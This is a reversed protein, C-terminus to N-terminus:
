LDGMFFFDGQPCGVHANAIFVASIRILAESTYVWPSKPNTQKQPVTKRHNM